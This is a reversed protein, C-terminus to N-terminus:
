DFVWIEYGLDRFLCKRMPDLCSRLSKASSSLNRKLNLNGQSETPISPSFHGCKM